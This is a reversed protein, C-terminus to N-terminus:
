PRAQARIRRRQSYLRDENDLQVRVFESGGSVKAFADLFELLEARLEGALLERLLAAHEFRVEHERSGVDPPRAAMWNDLLPHWYALLPRLEHNLLHGALVAFSLEGARSAAVSPGNRRLIDRVSGFLTSLSRLAESLLGEDARLPIVPVRTSLEVCLEWAAHREAENPRWSGSVTAGTRPLDIVVAFLRGDSTTTTM